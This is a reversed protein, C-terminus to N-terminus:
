DEALFEDVGFRIVFRYIRTSHRAFLMRMAHESGNAISQVLAQDLVPWQTAASPSIPSSSTHGSQFCRHRRFDTVVSPAITTTNAQAPVFLGNSKVSVGVNANVSKLRARWSRVACASALGNNIQPRVVRSYIPGGGRDGASRYYDCKRVQRSWSNLDKANPRSIHKKM